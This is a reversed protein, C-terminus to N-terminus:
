DKSSLHGLHNGCHHPSALEASGTQIVHCIRSVFFVVERKEGCLFCMIQLWHVASPERLAKQRCIKTWKVNQTHSILGLSSSIRRTRWSMLVAFPSVTHFCGKLVVGVCQSVAAILSSKLKCVSSVSLFCVRWSSKLKTRQRVASKWQVHKPLAARRPWAPSRCAWVSTTSIKSPPNPPNETLM